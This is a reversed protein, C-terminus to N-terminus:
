GLVGYVRALVALISTVGGTPTAMGKILVSVSQAEYLVVTSGYM